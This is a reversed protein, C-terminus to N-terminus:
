TKVPFRFIFESGEGKKSEITIKANHAQLIKYTIALGLGTGIRGKTTYFPEFLRAKTEDSMGVGNDRVRVVVELGIIKCSVQVTPEAVDAVAHYANITVNLFAQILKDKSGRIDSDESLDTHLVVGQKLSQDRKVFDLVERLLQDLHVIDVPVKEPKAYDKFEGILRGLRAIERHTNRILKHDTEDDIKIKPELFQINASIAALPNGLEHAIGSALGGIAALKQQHLLTLELRRLETVDEIVVLVDSPNAQHPLIQVQLLLNDNERKLPVEIKESSKVQSPLSVAQIKEIEPAFEPIVSKLDLGELEDLKFIQRAGPNASLIVGQRSLTLLGAPITDVISANLARLQSLSLGQAELQEAIMGAIWAVAFFALNYLIFTFFFTMAKLEPGILSVVSFCLSSWAALLLAGRAQFILAMLLIEILFIFLFLSVSLESKYLLLAVLFIDLFFSFSLLSPRSYFQELGIMGMVNLALGASTILYFQWYFDWNFFSGQNLHVLVALGLLLVFVAVRIGQIILKQNRFRDQFNKTM